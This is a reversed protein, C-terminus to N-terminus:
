SSERLVLETPLVIEKFVVASKNKICKIENLLIETATIGMDYAPQNVTSIQPLIASTMFWNSFGFIAVDEPIRIKQELLYKVVGIAALDTSAFIANIESHELIAKKACNYGGEYGRNSNCSYVLSSDFEINNDILAQRYGDFRYSLNKPSFDGRFHAIKRHGKSILYTVAKYAAEFDDIRVKSCNISQEIKDFLVLPIGKSLIKKLHAFENTDNSLSMLIGDVRKELLLNVQQKELTLKENSQVIIVFYGEKEARELIGDIVQSFFYHATTPIIVGITKSQQSRLNVAIQNPTYNLLRATHLVRQKTPESIENSGNLAKSVTAPSLGLKKAIDKLRIQGM